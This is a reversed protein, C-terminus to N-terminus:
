ILSLSSANYKLAILKSLYFLLHIPIQYSFSDIPLRYITISLFDTSIDIFLRYYWQIIDILQRCGYALDFPLFHVELRIEFM